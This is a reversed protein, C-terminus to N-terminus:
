WDAALGKQDAIWESCILAQAVTDVDKLQSFPIWIEIGGIVFLASKKWVVKVEDFNIGVTDDGDYECNITTYKQRKKVPKKTVKVGSDDPRPAPEAEPEAAEAKRSLERLRRMKAMDM